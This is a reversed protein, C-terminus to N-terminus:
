RIFTWKDFLTSIVSWIGNATVEWNFESARQRGLSAMKHRDNDSINLVELMRAELSDVDQPDFFLCSDSGVERFPPIDSAIVPTGLAMAEILPLGFGEYLSPFLLALANSYYEVLKVDSVYGTIHVNPIKQLDQGDLKWGVRGVIVLNIDFRESVKRFAKLALQINKRPEQTAVILFYPRDLISLSPPPDRFILPVGEPIASILVPDINLWEAIEQASFESVTVLGAFYKSRIARMLIRAYYWKNGRSMTEPYRYPVADHVVMSFPVFNILPIGMTNYHVWNVRQKLLTAPIWIQDILLRHKTPAILLSWSDSLEFYEKGNPHTLLIVEHKTPIKAMANVVEVTYREIGTLRHNRVFTADIALKM